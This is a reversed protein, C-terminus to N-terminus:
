TSLPLLLSTLIRTGGAASGSFICPCWHRSLATDDIDGCAFRTPTTPAFATHGVVTYVTYCMNQTPTQLTYKTDLRRLSRGVSQGIGGNFRDLHVTNLKQQV